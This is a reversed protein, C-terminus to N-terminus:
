GRASNIADRLRMAAARAETAYNPGAGAYLVGRSANLLIGAGSADLTARVAAALDGEQAGVGPLLMLLDPCIERIRAGQQPYTAGVVLGVNGRDNWENARAAVQEYLPRAGDALPLEQVEVAGPNSTHCLVFAHREEYELFPELADRGLYPSLTVADAGLGDYVARAYFRATNGIDGRKADLLVPVDDPVAAIVDRLLALGGDIDHEYFAINPKYCCVIDSTAEIVELLFTRADVGGPIRDPDPDLGVCLLSDNRSVAAEYKARFGVPMNAPADAESATASTM